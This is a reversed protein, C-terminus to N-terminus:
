SRRHTPVKRALAALTMVCVEVQRSVELIENASQLVKPEVSLSNAHMRISCIMNSIEHVLLSVQDLNQGSKASKM